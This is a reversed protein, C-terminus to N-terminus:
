VYCSRSSIGFLLVATLLAKPESQLLPFIFCLSLGMHAYAAASKQGAIHPMTSLEFLEILTYCTALAM